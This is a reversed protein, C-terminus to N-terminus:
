RRTRRGSRHGRKGKRSRGEKENERWRIEVQEDDELSPQVIMEPRGVMWEAGDDEEYKLYIDRETSGHDRGTQSEVAPVTM